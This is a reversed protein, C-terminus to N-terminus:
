EPRYQKANFGDVNFEFTPSGERYFEAQIRVKKAALMKSVFGAYNNIFISTSNHDSPESVSYSVAQGDDFRILVKCGNFKCLFQGKEINLIVNKGYRPHTRLTLYARQEGQYPFAFNVTNISKISANYVLKSSMDDAFHTYDWGQNQIAIETVSAVQTTTSGPSSFAYYIIFLVLATSIIKGYHIFYKSPKGANNKELEKTLEQVEIKNAIVVAKRNESLEIYAAFENQKLKSIESLLLVVDNENALKAEKIVKALNDKTLLILKQLDSYKVLDKAPLPNFRLKSPKYFIASAGWFPKSTKSGEVWYNSKIVKM